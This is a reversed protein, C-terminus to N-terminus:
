INFFSTEKCDLFKTSDHHKIRTLESLYFKKVIIKICSRNRISSHHFCYNYKRISLLINWNQPCMTNFLHTSNVAPLLFKIYTLFFLPISNQNCKTSFKRINVSKNNSVLDFACHDSDSLFLINLYSSFHGM